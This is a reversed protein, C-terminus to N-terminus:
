TLAEDVRVGNRRIIRAPVGAVVCSDPVNKVVVANAGVVVYDGIRIRGLIKAGAGVSVHNGLTPCEEPRTYGITVQQRIICNSGIAEAAVITGFGHQIFLGPGVAGRASISLTASERYVIKFLHALIKGSLNASSLRYYFLNRFEVPGSLLVLLTWMDAMAPYELVTAWRRADERIVPQNCTLAYPILMPWVLMAM